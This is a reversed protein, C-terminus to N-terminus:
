FSAGPETHWCVSVCARQKWPLVQWHKYHNRSGSGRHKTIYRGLDGPCFASCCQQSSHMRRAKTCQKFLRERSGKSIYTPAKLIWVNIRTVRHWLSTSSRSQLRLFPLNFSTVWDQNRCSLKHTVAGCWWWAKAKTGLPSILLRSSLIHLHSLLYGPSLFFPSYNHKHWWSATSAAAEARQQSEALLSELPPGALRQCAAVERQHEGSGDERSANGGASSTSRLQERACGLHHNEELTTIALTQSGWPTRGPCPTM